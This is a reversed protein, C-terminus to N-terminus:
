VKQCACILRFHLPSESFLGDAVGGAATSAPGAGLSSWDPMFFCPTTQKITVWDEAQAPGEFTSVFPKSQHQFYASHSGYRRILDMVQEAPWPGNGAYDFSFFLRFGTSAAAQFAKELAVNNKPWDYAINLAFADIHANKALNMNNVWDSIEFLATNGVQTGLILQFYDEPSPLPHLNGHFSCLSGQSGCPFAGVASGSRHGAVHHTELTFLLRSCFPNPETQLEFTRRSDSWWRRAM